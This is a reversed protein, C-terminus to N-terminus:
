WCFQPEGQPNCTTYYFSVRIKHIIENSKNKRRTAVSIKLPPIVLSYSGMQYTKQYYEGLLFSISTPQDFIREDQGFIFQMAGPLTSVEVVVPHNVRPNKPGDLTMAEKIKPGLV